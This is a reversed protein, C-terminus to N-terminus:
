KVVTMKLTQSARGGVTFRCFHVGAGLTRGDLAHVHSGPLQMGIEERRVLRGAANYLELAIEAANKLEYPFNAYSDEPSFPNPFIRGVSFEEPLPIRQSDLLSYDTKFAGRGHTTMFLTGDKRFQLDAITVNGVGENDITWNQGGDFSVFLGVDTGVFLCQTNAPHTVVTNAPVDPLSNPAAGSLNTWSAGYNTTKWLHGTGFGSVTAYAVGPNAAEVAIDTVWRNPFGSNISTWNAGGNTTVRMASTSAGTYVVSSSAKTLGIATLYGGGPALDPSIGSWNEAANTTRYVRYSGAYLLKPNLPDMEFPALFAVRDTTGGDAAQPIGNMKRNFSGANGFSTSKLFELYYIESYVTRPDLYDWATYAGDGGTADVWHTGSTIKLNGNDITGGILLDSTPHPTGSHFQVTVLGANCDVFSAGGNRTKFVGGDCGVVFEQPNSPNFLLAHDDAHVFAYGAAGFWNTMQEWSAGGSTSRYLNIGGAWVTNPDTPHVALVSNYQGQAGMYNDGYLEDMPIEVAQWSDGRNSSRFLGACSEDNEDTFAAYVIDGNTPAAAIQIRNFPAVSIGNFLPGTWNLGHDASRYIGAGEICAYVLGETTRSFASCMGRYQSMTLRMRTWTSGGDSTRMIGVKTAALIIQSDFPDFAIDFVFEFNSNTTSPILSWTAGADNSRYIGRGYALDEQWYVFGEGNGALVMSPNKPDIAMSGIRLNQVFDSLPAWSTGGNISKWVGGGAAGAYLILPNTPDMAMARIRGAINTPGLSIWRWAVSSKNLRSRLMREIHASAKERWDDPVKADPYLRQAYHFRDAEGPKDPRRGEHTDCIRHLYIANAAYITAAAIAAIRAAAFIGNM